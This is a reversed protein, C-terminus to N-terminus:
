AGGSLFMRLRAHTPDLNGPVYANVTRCIWGLRLALDCARVLDDRSGFCAFQELYPDRYPAIDESGEVDELGWSIVGELTVSLTFFPHSICADGWDMLLYRGDRVFVQADHFDDHQITEPIGFSALEDCAEAIWPLQDRLRQEDEVLEGALAAVLREFQEPLTALRVDPVGLAILEEAEGAMDIQVGAYLPLVHLWRELSREEAILARLTTGADEMLMWGRELDVAVLPPVCDRRRAALRAVLAAEYRLAETNAKFWVAGGETPVRMVTSWPRVHPQEIAGVPTVQERIWAQAEALWAPDTWGSV